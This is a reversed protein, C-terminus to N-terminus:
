FGRLWFLFGGTLNVSFSSSSGDITNPAGIFSTGVALYPETLGGTDFKYGLDLNLSFYQLPNEWLDFPGQKFTNFTTSVAGYLGSSFTYSVGLDVGVMINDQLNTHTPENKFLRTSGFGIDLTWTDEKVTNSQKDQQAMANSGVTLLLLVILTRKIMKKKKYQKNSHKLADNFDQERIM